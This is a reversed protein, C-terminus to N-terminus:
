SLRRYNKPCVAILRLGYIGNKKSNIIDEVKQKLIPIKNFEDTLELSFIHNSFSEYFTM